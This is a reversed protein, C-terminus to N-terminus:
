YVLVMSEMSGIPLRVTSVLSRYGAAFGKKETRFVCFFRPGKNGKVNLAENGLPGHLPLTQSM